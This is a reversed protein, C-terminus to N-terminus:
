DLPEVDITEDEILAPDNKIIKAAKEITMEMNFINNQQLLPSDNWDAQYRLWYKQAELNGPKKADQLLTKKVKVTENERAALITLKVREDREMYEYLAQRSLGLCDAITGISRTVQAIDTLQELFRDDIIYKPDAGKKKPCKNSKKKSAM